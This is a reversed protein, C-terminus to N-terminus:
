ILAILSQFAGKAGCILPRRHYKQIESASESQARLHAGDTDNQSLFQMWIRLFLLPARCATCDALEHTTQIPTFSLLPPLLLPFTTKCTAPEVRGAKDKRNLTPFEGLRQALVAGSGVKKQHRTLLLPQDRSVRWSEEWGPSPVNRELIHAAPQCHKLSLSMKRQHLIVPSNSTAPLPPFYSLALFILCTCVM